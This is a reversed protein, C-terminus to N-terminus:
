IINELIPYLYIPELSLNAAVNISFILLFHGAAVDTMSKIIRLVKNGSKDIVIEGEVLEVDEREALEDRTKLAHNTHKIVILSIWQDDVGERVDDSIATEQVSFEPIMNITKTISEETLDTYYRGDREGSFDGMKFSMYLIGGDKLSAGIKKFAEPLEESSVHVLSACAWVGDFEEIYDLDQFLINRVKLGTLASAKECLKESGDIATVEYGQDLFYKADRGSGCGLDLIHAGAYLRKEFMSYQASMDLNVTSDYYGDANSDYYEITKSM